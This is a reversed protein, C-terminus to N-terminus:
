RSEECLLVFKVNSRFKQFVGLTYLSLLHVDVILFLTSQAYESLLTEITYKSCHSVVKDSTVVM